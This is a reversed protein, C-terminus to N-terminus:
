RDRSGYGPSGHPHPPLSWYWLLMSVAMALYTALGLSTVMAVMSEGPLATYPSAGPLHLRIVYAFRAWPMSLGPLSRWLAYHVAMVGIAIPLGALLETIQLDWTREGLNGFQRPTPCNRDAIAVRIIRKRWWWASLLGSPVGFFVGLCAEIIGPYYQSRVMITVGAVLLCTFIILLGASTATCPVESKTISQTSTQNAM